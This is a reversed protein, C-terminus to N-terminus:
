TAPTECAEESDEAIEAVPKEHRIREKLASAQASKIAPLHGEQKSSGATDIKVTVLDFVRDLVNQKTNIAQVRDFKIDLQTKKIVGDRILISDNTIQYRFFLYRIISIAITITVFGVTGFVIKWLLDGEYAFM